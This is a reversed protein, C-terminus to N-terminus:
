QNRQRPKQERCPHGFCVMNSSMNQTVISGAGIITNKGIVVGDLLVVRAGLWAGDAVDIGKATEGQFRIPDDAHFIHDAASVYCHGAIIVTHGIKLGGHGALVTYEGISSRNGINISGDYSRIICGYKLKSRAGIQVIGKNGLDILVNPEVITYAGVTLIGTGTITANESVRATEHIEIMNEKM